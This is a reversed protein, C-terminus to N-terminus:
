HCGLRGGLRPCMVGPLSVILIEYLCYGLEELWGRQMVVHVLGDPGPFPLVLEGGVQGGGNHFKGPWLGTKGWFQGWSGRVCDPGVVPIAGQMNHGVSCQYATCLPHFDRLVGTHCRKTPCGGHATSNSNISM